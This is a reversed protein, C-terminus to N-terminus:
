FFKMYIQMVKVLKTFNKLCVTMFYKVYLGLYQKVVTQIKKEQFIKKEHM